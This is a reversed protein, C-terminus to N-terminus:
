VILAINAAAINAAFNTQVNAHTAFSYAFGMVVTRRLAIVRNLVIQAACTM